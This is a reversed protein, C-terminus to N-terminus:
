CENLSIPPKLVQQRLTAYIKEKIWDKDQPAYSNTEKRFVLCSIDTLNDLFSYLEDIDYTITNGSNGSRRKYDEFMQIIGDMAKPISEFDAYTRTKPESHQVM